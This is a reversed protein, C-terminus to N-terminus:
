SKVACVGNFSWRLLITGIVLKTVELIWYVGHFSVMADPMIYSPEFLTFQMGLASMQPTLFYTYVLAIALLLGSLILSFSENKLPSNSIFHNRRIILLCTLISAASFLEIRNFIGFILYGASAFDSSSMMGAASLSPLVIFDITMSASLWFGLVYMVISSWNISRLSNNSVVNNM